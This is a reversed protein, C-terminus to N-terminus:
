LQHLALIYLSAHRRVLATPGSNKDLFLLCSSHRLGVASHVFVGAPQGESLGSVPASGPRVRATLCTAALIAMVSAQAQLM